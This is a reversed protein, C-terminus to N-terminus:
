LIIVEFYAMGTLLGTERITYTAGNFDISNYIEGHVYPRLRRNYVFHDEVNENGIYRLKRACHRREFARICLEPNFVSAVAMFDERKYLRSSIQPHGHVETLIEEKEFGKMHEADSWM